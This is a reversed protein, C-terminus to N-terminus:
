QTIKQMKQTTSTKQINFTHGSIVNLTLKTQIDILVIANNSGKIALTRGDPSLDAAIFKDVYLMMNERIAQQFLM